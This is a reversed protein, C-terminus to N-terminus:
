IGSRERWLAALAANGAVEPMPVRNWLALYLQDAPGSLEAEAVGSEERTTVPPEASLRVTWVDGTDSARVRLVRPEDTRVRSRTRAHFGRLLEDIGDVAFDRAVPSPVGTRASEADYRHVTTEHAQRRTWFALPSPSPAPHFTWCELDSPAAALTDVLRHHSDRYWAVLEAGDLDPLDGFPRPATQEDAIIGAAWRHVAGTHRLLDRVQWEPCTPVKADTGAVEAAATLLRGERDLTQLFDATEM